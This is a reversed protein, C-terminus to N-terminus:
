IKKWFIGAREQEVVGVRSQRGVGVVVDAGLPVEVGVRHLGCPAKWLRIPVDEKRRWRRHYMMLLLGSHRTISGSVNALYPLM